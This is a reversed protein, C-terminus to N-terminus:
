ESILEAYLIQLSMEEGKTNNLYNKTEVLGDFRGYIRVIDDELIKVYNSDTTDRNDLLYIM